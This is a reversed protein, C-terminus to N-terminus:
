VERYANAPYRFDYKRWKEHKEQDRPSYERSRLKLFMEEIFMISYKHLTILLMFRILWFQFKLFEEM